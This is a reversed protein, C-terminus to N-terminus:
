QCCGYRVQDHLPCSVLRPHDCDAYLDAVPRPQALACFVSAKSCRFSHCTDSIMWVTWRQPLWCRQWSWHSAFRQRGRAASACTHLATPHQEKASSVPRRRFVDSSLFHCSPALQSYIFLLFYWSIGSFWCQVASRLKAWTMYLAVMLAQLPSLHCIAKDNSNSSSLGSFGHSGYAAMVIKTWFVHRWHFDAPFGQLFIVDAEVAGNASCLM